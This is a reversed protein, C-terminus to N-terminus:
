RRLFSATLAAVLLDRTRNRPQLCTTASRTWFICLDYLIHAVIATWLGYNFALYFMLLGIYWANIMGLLGQYEHGNKFRVNASVIAAAFLWGYTGGLQHDLLGFSAWNALPILATTYFWKVLGFTIVNFIKLTIMAGFLMLWRYMIEEFFGANLSIWTGKALIHGPEYERPVRRAALILGSLITLGIGWAFIFWAAHLGTAMSSHSSWIGMFSIPAHIWSKLFTYAVGVILLLGTTMTINGVTMESASADFPSKGKEM